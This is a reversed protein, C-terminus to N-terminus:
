QRDPAHRQGARDGLDAHSGREACPDRGPSAPAEARTQDEAEREGHCAGDHEEPRQLM